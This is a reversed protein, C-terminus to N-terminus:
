KKRTSKGQMVTNWAGGEGQVDWRFTYADPSLHEIVFRSKITQGGMKADDEYTWTDGSITGRPISTMTMSGNDLGYYTYVKEEASYGLVGLNKIPGMPGRGQGNCIVAFKGEFWRCDDESTLKGGPGFPSAKMEGETRWEGVYYGLRAHEPTPKAEPSAQAFAASALAVAFSCAVISRIRRM